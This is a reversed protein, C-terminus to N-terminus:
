IAEHSDNLRDRVHIDAGIYSNPDAYAPESGALTTAGAALRMRIRGAALRASVLKPRTRHHSASTLLISAM